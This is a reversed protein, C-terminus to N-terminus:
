SQALVPGVAIIFTAAVRGATTIIFAIWDINRGHGHIELVVMSAIDVLDMVGLDAQTCVCRLVFGHVLLVLARRPVIGGIGVEM